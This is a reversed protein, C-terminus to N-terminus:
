ASVDERRIFYGEEDKDVVQLFKEEDNDFSLFIDEEDVQINRLREAAPSTSIISKCVTLDIGHGNTLQELQSAFLFDEPGDSSLLVGVQSFPISNCRFYTFVSKLDLIGAALIKRGSPVALISKVGNTTLLGVESFGEIKSARFPSNGFDAQEVKRGKNEAFICFREKRQRLFLLEDISNSIRIRKVQNKLLVRTTTFARLVDVVIIWERDPIEPYTSVQFISPM